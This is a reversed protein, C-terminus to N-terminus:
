HQKLVFNLSLKWHNIEKKIKSGNHRHESKFIVFRGPKFDIVDGEINLEGGWEPSWEPTAFGVITYTFPEYVDTHFDTNSTTNKAGIHIRQISPPLSFNYTKEFTNKINELLGIFRGYWFANKIENNDKVVFGPWLGTQSNHTNRTLFWVNSSILDTYLNILDHKTIINDLLYYKKETM